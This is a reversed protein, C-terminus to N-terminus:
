EPKDWVLLYRRLLLRRFRCGPLVERALRETEGWSLVPPLSPVSKGPGSKPGHRLRLLHSAVQGAGSIVWDRPSRNKALGVVVLRGGPALLGALALASRRFEAHHTVAVASIFDYKGEPLLGRPDDLYDATVFSVNDLHGHRECALAVAACSRDAATVDPVRAALKSALLGDGCGIDLARECGAPMLKMVLSQYHVNHNWYPESM